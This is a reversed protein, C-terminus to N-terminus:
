SANKLAEAEKQLVWQRYTEAMDEFSESNDAILDKGDVMRITANLEVPGTHEPVSELREIRKRALELTDELGRTINAVYADASLPKGTALEVFEPFTKTAGLKWVERMERGVEPNDVIYGYKEYFYDRWQALSLEALGYGHYYCASEWSYIHPVFLVFYSPETFDNYKDSARRAMELVKEETLDPTSYLELEFNMVSMIGMMNLPRKPQVKRLGEEYLEFPYVNGDADKAYRALWEPSCQMTDLFMSHTEAWASTQPAYEHSMCVQSCESNLLHLGHGGEHFLTLYGRAGAGVQGPVANSTFNCQGPVRAGSEYHVLTPWHCFGNSYKGKRDMLDLQLTGGQYDCGLAAFSRGWADLAHSFQLYPDKKQMEDGQLMYAQSWPDRLGPQEKEMERLTEFGYKTQEYIEDFLGFVQEITMGELALKYAYFNEYGLARAFKNRLEVLKILTQVDMVSFNEVARYCVERLTEHDEVRTMARMKGISAEVFKGTEPDTYGEDRSTREKLLEAELTAIEERLPLLEKPVQYCSFFRQWQLLAEREDGTATTLAEDVQDSFEHNARFAELEKEAAVMDDDVSHDGMYSIWFLEEYATHLKSMTTNLEQLLGEFMNKEKMIETM